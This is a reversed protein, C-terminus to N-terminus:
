NRKLELQLYAILGKQTLINDCITSKWHKQFSRKIQFVAIFDLLTVHTPFFGDEKETINLSIVHMQTNCTGTIM